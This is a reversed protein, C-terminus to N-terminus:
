PFTKEKKKIIKWFLYYVDEKNIILSVLFFNWNKM